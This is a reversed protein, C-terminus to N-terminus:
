SKRGFRLYAAYGYMKIFASKNSAFRVYDIAYLFKFKRGITKYVRFDRGSALFLAFPRSHLNFLVRIGTWLVQIGSTGTWRYCFACISPFAPQITGPNGDVSSTYGFDGDVPSFFRLHVPICASYYGSERGYFKYVQLERGNALFLAFPRSHLSFLVRIGTWLVQIGSIGTWQRPCVTYECIINTDEFSGM